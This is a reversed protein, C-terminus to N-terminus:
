NEMSLLIGKKLTSNTVFINSHWEVEMKRELRNRKLLIFVADVPSATSLRSIFCHSASSFFRRKREPLGINGSQLGISWVAAIM